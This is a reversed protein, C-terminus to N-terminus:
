GLPRRRSLGRFDALVWPATPGNIARVVDLDADADLDQVVM